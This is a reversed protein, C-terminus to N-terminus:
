CPVGTLKWRRIENLHYQFYITNFFFTMGGSLNLGINEVQTYYEELASRLAFHGTVILVLGGLNFLGSQTNEGTAGSIVGSFFILGMGIGYFILPKTERTIKRVYYAQVFMWVCSFLGFTVIVLALLIGWHLPPPLPTSQSVPMTGPPIYGPLQGYSQQTAPAPQVQINGVIQQVTVPEMIAESRAQDTMAVNGQAVYRQLDAVSYPGFEQGGRIVFYNM